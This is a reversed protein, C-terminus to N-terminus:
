LCTAFLLLEKYIRQEYKVLCSWAVKSGVLAVHGMKNWVVKWDDGRGLQNTILNSRFYYLGNARVYM